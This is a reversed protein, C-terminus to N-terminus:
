CFIYILIKGIFLKDADETPLPLIPIEFIFHTSLFPTTSKETLFDCNQPINMSVKYPLNGSITNTKCIMKVQLDPDYLTALEPMPEFFDRIKGSYGFKTMNVEGDFIGTKRKLEVSKIIIEPSMYVGIETLGNSDSIFQPNTIEENVLGNYSLTTNFSIWIIGNEENSNVPKNMHYMTYHQTRREAKKYPYFLYETLFKTNHSIANSLEHTTNTEMMKKTWVKTPEIAGRGTVNLIEIQFETNVFGTFNNEPLTVGIHFLKSKAYAFGEGSSISIDFITIKWSFQFLYKIVPESSGMEATHTRQTYHLNNLFQDPYYEVNKIVLNSIIQKQKTFGSGKEEIINPYKWYRANYILSKAIHSIDKALASKTYGVMLGYFPLRECCILEFILLILFITKTM